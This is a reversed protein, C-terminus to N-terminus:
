EEKQYTEKVDKEIESYLKSVDSDTYDPKEYSESFVVKISALRGALRRDRRLDHGTLFIYDCFTDGIFYFFIFFLEFPEESQSQMHWLLIVLIILGFFMGYFIRKHRKEEKEVTGLEYAFYDQIVEKITRKEEQSLCESIINLVLPYEPPTVGAATKLYDVFDTNLTEYNKVSYTSIVDDYGSINCPLTAIGNRIYDKELRYDIHSKRSEFLKVIDREIM